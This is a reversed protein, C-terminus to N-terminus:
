NFRCFADKVKWWAARQKWRIPRPMEPWCGRLVRQQIYCEAVHKSIKRVWLDSAYVKLPSFFHRENRSGGELPFPLRIVPPAPRIRLAPSKGTLLPVTQTWEPIREMRRKPLSQIVNINHTKDYATSKSGTAYWVAHRLFTSQWDLKSVPQSTDGREEAGDWDWGPESSM